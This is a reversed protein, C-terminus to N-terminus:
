RRWRPLTAGALWLGALVGVVDAVADLVDGDRHPLLLAQVVESVVANLVLVAALPVAPLGAKTGTWAVAAFLLLHVVKDVGPFGVEPGPEGPAYLAVLHVAVALGFAIRWSM